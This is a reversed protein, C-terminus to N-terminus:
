HKFQPEDFVPRIYMIDVNHQLLPEEIGDRLHRPVATIYGRIMADEDVESRGLIHAQHEAAPVALDLYKKYSMPTDAILEQLATRAEEHWRINNPM